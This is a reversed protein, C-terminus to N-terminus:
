YNFSEYFKELITFITKRINKNNDVKIECAAEYLKNRELFLKEIETFNKSLPRGKTKLKELNRDVYVIFGNQKLAKITEADKVAGGGTAIVIDTQKSLNILIEKERERFFQEGKMSFIEEISQSQEIAILKDSDYFAKGVKKSVAKGISTKGSGPMGIFVINKMKLEIIRIILTILEDDSDNELFIDRAKKAQAVLMALGGSNKVKLEEAQLILNTKLPNYVVDFVGELSKFDQLNILHGNNNPFMGVSTTNIIVQSDFYQSINQYNDKGNRSIVTIRKANLEKAVARATLSAGGSGLILVKKSTLEIGSYNLAYKLGFFDTNYGVLKGNTNVITNVAGIEKALPHIEDLFRMVKQKYPITVNIGDFARQSVFSEFQMENLPMLKYNYGFLNHIQESFSHTLPFGVLFFKKM